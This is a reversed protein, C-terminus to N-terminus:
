QREFAEEREYDSDYGTCPPMRPEHPIVVARRDIAEVLKSAPVGQLDDTQEDYKGLIESWKIVSMDYSM